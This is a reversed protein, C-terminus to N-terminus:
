KFKIEIIDNILIIFKIFAATEGDSEETFSGKKQAM